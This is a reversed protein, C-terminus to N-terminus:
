AGLLTALHQDQIPYRFQQRYWRFVFYYKEANIVKAGKWQM